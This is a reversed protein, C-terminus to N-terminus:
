LPEFGYINYFEEEFDYFALKINEIDNIEPYSLINYNNLHKCILNLVKSNEIIDIHDILSMKNVKKLEPEIFDLIINNGNCVSELFLSALGNKCIDINNNM